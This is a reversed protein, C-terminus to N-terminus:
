YFPRSEEELSVLENSKFTLVLAPNSMSDQQAM